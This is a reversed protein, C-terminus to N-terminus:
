RITIPITRRVPSRATWISCPSAIRKRFITRAVLSQKAGYGDNWLSLPVTKAEQAAPAKWVVGFAYLISVAILACLAIMAVCRWLKLQKTTEM